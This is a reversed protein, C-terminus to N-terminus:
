SEFDLSYIQKKEDLSPGPSLALRSTAATQCPDTYYLHLNESVMYPGRSVRAHHNYGMITDAIYM